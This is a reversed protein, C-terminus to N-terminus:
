FFNLRFSFVNLYYMPVVVNITHMIDSRQWERNHRQLATCCTFIFDIGANCPQTAVFYGNVYITKHM